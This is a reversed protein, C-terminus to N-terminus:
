KSIYYNKRSHSYTKGSENVVNIGYWGNNDGHGWNMHFWSNRVGRREEPVEVSGWGKTFTGNGEPQWETLFFFVNVDQTRAGDCIWYHSSGIYQLAGILFSLNDDNGLMIVPRKLEILQNTVKDNDSGEVSVNYGINRIGDKMDGPTTWSGRMSFHTNVYGAVYRVLRADNPKYNLKSDTDISNWDFKYGNYELKNPIKYYTMLQAMAIAACGAPYGDCLDNFPSDQDWNTQILPGVKRNVTEIKWGVVSADLPSHNFNASYCLSEYLTAQGADTFAQEAYKLPAFSWGAGLQSQLEECREVCANFGNSNSSQKLPMKLTGGELSKWIDRMKSKTSDDQSSSSVIADREDQIWYALGNDIDDTNFTCEDSYALIPYYDKSAGVIVFGKEYNVIYMIPSDGDKIPQVSPNQFTADDIGRTEKKVDKNVFTNAVELAQNSTILITSKDSAGRDLNMSVDDVTAYNESCASFLLALCVNSLTVILNKKKM